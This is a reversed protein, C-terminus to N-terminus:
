QAPRPHHFSMSELIGWSSQCRKAATQTHKLTDKPQQITRYYMHLLTPLQIALCATSGDLQVEKALKKSLCDLVAFYESCEYELM